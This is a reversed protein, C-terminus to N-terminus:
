HSSSASLDMVAVYHQINTVAESALRFSSLEAIGDPARCLGDGSSLNVSAEALAMVEPNEAAIARPGCGFIPSDLGWIVSPASHSRSRCCADEIVDDPINPPAISPM